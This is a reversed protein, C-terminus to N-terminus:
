ITVEKQSQRKKIEHSTANLYTSVLFLAGYIAWLPKSILALPWWYFMVTALYLSVYPVFVPWYPPTRWQIQRIYEVSYGFAAWILFIFGGLWYSWSMGILLFYISLGVAPICLLYIIKGYRMALEYRRKRLAFHVILAAQFFFAWAVFMIESIENGAM